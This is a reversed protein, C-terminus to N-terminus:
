KEKIPNFSMKQIEATPRIVVQPDSKCTKDMIFVYNTTKYIFFRNKDRQTLITDNDKLIIDFTIQKNTSNLLKMGDAEGIKLSLPCLFSVLTILAVRKDYFLWLHLVILLMVLLFLAYKPSEIVKVFYVYTVLLVIIFGILKGNYKNPNKKLLFMQLYILCLGILVWVFSIIYFHSLAKVYLAKLCDEITFYIEFSIGFVGLFSVLYIFGLLVLIPVALVVVVSWNIKQPAGQYDSNLKRKIKLYCFHIQRKIKPLSNSM